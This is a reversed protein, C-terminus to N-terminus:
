AIRSENHRAYLIVSNHGGFGLSNSMAFELSALNRGHHPVYDLDCLEDPQDLNITPPIYDHCIALVSVIGELAGAAGMCHGIMSKTSSIPIDYARKGFALKIAQTEVVDNILTSTGHANIYGVQDVAVGADSLCALMARSSGEGGQEPATLHFADNSMGHGAVEAYVRAGRRRASELSELVLIGAGEGLVFGNRDRDFPRSAREPHDELGTSLANLTGFGAIGLPTIAAEAGGAIIMDATGDRILRLANGIADNASACATAVAYVPGRAGVALAINAPAMNATVKAILMPDIRAPGRQELVLASREVLEVGGVGVGIVVGLRDSSVPQTQDSGDELVELGADEWAEVAAHVAYQTFRDM